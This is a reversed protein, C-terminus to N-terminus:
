IVVTEKVNAAGVSVDGDDSTIFYITAVLFAFSVLFYDYFTYLITKKYTSDIVIRNCVHVHAPSM